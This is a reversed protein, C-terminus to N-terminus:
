WYIMFFVVTFLVFFLITAFFSIVIIWLKNLRTKKQLLYFTIMSAIGTAILTPVEIDKSVGPNHANALFPLVLPILFLILKKM